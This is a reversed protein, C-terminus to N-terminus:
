QFKYIADCGEGVEHIYRSGNDFLKVLAGMAKKDTQGKEYSGGNTHLFTDLNEAMAKLKREWIERPEFGKNWYAMDRLKLLGAAEFGKEKQRESLQGEALFVYLYAHVKNNWSWLPGLSPKPLTASPGYMAKVASKLWGPAEALLSDRQQYVFRVYNQISLGAERGTTPLGLFECPNEECIQRFEGESLRSRFYKWYNKETLRQRVLFFDTGFLIRRRYVDSGLLKSINAFYHKEADGGAMPESHYSIDAYVGAFREMLDLITRTWCPDPIQPSSLYKAGGFHGFCIKLNPHRGLIAKWRSPDSNRRTANSYYFGGETCHMLLPVGREECYGYVKDMEPSDIAFGLSPYLKVGVFGRGSLATEMIHFHEPRCTNVAVFPFLRGPYALVQASTAALQKEFLKPNSGDNTIDMTLAVVGDQATVQEMLNDTVHRIDPLLAIRLFSLGDLIDAKRADKDGKDLAEGIKGLLTVLGEVAYDELVAGGSFQMRLTDGPSLGNLMKNFDASKSVKQVVNRFLTEEDVYPGAKKFLSGLQKVLENKILDPIEMDTIRNLLIQLTHSTFVATGNFIHAHCNIRM